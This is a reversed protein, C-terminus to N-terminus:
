KKISYNGLVLCDLGSTYFTRIADEPSCVIPEGSTNFSTNLLLPVNTIKRFEDIVCYFRPNDEKRVTQLRGTGDVHVVAPVEKVKEKKFSLALEMFPAQGSNHNLSFYSDVYEELIAPAFPRFNERYKIASNVTDKIKEDRPDALISRNGLARQGFEMRGQFWGVVKGEAVVKAIEYEIDDVHTYRLNYKQLIEKINKNSWKPGLYPLASKECVTRKHKLIMHYVYLAAGISNGSDDPAFPVYLRKFPTKSLAKGNFVCNMFTGGSLCLSEMGTEKHLYQLAHVLIEETTKQLAASIDFHITRLPEDPQRPKGFLKYAKSSLLGETDYHFHNFYNLDLEVQGNERLEYLQRFHAMFRKPDGYPSAGMVKWEDSEPTFGLFETLATYLAGISHPFHMEQFITITNDRGFGWSATAIEGFYDSTLIAAENFPSLYYANAAHAYHHTVHHIAMKETGIFSFIEETNTVERKKRLTLLRNPISSLREMPTRTWESFAKRYRLSANIGPNWAVAIYEIDELVINEYELCFNMAKVPFESTSKRRVFREEPAAAITKGDKILAVSSIPGSAHIGLIYM